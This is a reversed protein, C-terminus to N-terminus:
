PSSHAPVGLRNIRLVRPALVAGALEGELPQSLLTHGALAPCAFLSVCSNTRDQLDFRIVLAGDSAQQRLLRICCHLLFWALLLQREQLWSLAAHTLLFTRELADVLGDDLHNMAARVFGLHEILDTGLIRPNPGLPELLADGL